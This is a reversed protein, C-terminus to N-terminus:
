WEQTTGAAGLSALADAIVNGQIDAHGRVWHWRISAHNSATRILDATGRILALHACVRWNQRVTFAAFRSDFLIMYSGGVPQSLIYRAAFYLAVVEAVNNSLRFIWRSPADATQCLIPGCCRALESDASSVFFGWGAKAPGHAGAKTFSGDVFISIGHFDGPLCLGTQLAPRVRLQRPLKMPASSCKFPNTLSATAQEVDFAFPPTEALDRFQRALATTADASACWLYNLLEAYENISLVDWNKQYFVLALM